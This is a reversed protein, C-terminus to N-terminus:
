GTEENRVEAATLGAAALAQEFAVIAYLGHPPLGRLLDRSTSYGDPWRWAPWLAGPTDFGKITGAVKVPLETGPLLDIREIGSISQRLSRAVTARENGISTVFGLGSIVVRPGRGAGTM